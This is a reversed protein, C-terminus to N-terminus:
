PRSSHPSTKSTNIQVWKIPQAAEVLELLCVEPPPDFGAMADNAALGVLTVEPALLVNLQDVLPAVEIEMVGPVNV